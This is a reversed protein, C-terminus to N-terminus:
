SQASGRRVRSNIAREYCRRTAAATKFVDFHDRIHQQGAAGLRAGLARDDMLRRIAAGLAPADAPPVLLGTREHIAVEPVGGVASAVAPVGAALAELLAVGLAEERSPLLFLDLAPFLDTVKDLFGPLRLNKQPVGITGADKHFEPPCAAAVYVLPADPRDKLIAAIAELAIDLGKRPSPRSTTGIAFVGEPIDFRARAEARKSAPAAAAIAASDVADPIMDIHDDPVGQRLLLARVFESLAIVRHTLRNYIWLTARSHFETHNHKTRVIAVRRGALRSAVVAINHDISGHVDVVEIKERRILRAMRIAAAAIWAGGRMWLTKVPFGDRTAHKEYGSGPMCAFVVHDGGDRLIKAVAYTRTQQGAWQRQRDVHLIRM